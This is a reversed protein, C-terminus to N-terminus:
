RIRVSILSHIISKVFILLCKRIFAYRLSNIFVNIFLYMCVFNIGCLNVNKM